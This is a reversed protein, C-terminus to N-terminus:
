FFCGRSFRVWLCGPKPIFVTPQFFFPLWLSPVGFGRAAILVVNVFLKGRFRFFFPAFGGSIVMM